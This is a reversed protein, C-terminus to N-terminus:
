KSPGFERDPKPHPETVIESPYERKIQERVAANKSFTEWTRTSQELGMDTGRRTEEDLEELRAELEILESQLALLTRANLEDFKSYIFTESDPDRAM